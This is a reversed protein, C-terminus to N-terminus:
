KPGVNGQLLENVNFSVIRCYPAPQGNETLAVHMIRDDPEFVVSHHLLMRPIPVKKLLDWSGEVTLHTRGGSSEIRQLAQKLTDYRWCATPPIRKEFHNTCVLFSKGAEPERLTVGSGVNLAGDYEFVVSGKGAKSAPLGVFMNQPFVNPRTVLLQQIDEVATEASAKELAERFILMHSYSGIEPSAELGMADHSAAIVGEDNMGTICGIHGPFAIMVTGHDGSGPVPTRVTMIHTMPVSEPVINWDMNRGVISHGDWTMDGWASFSSCNFYLVYSNNLFLLDEIKVERDLEPIMAKGGKARAHIGLLMAEFEEMYKPLVVAGELRPLITNEYFGPTIDLFRVSILADLMDVFDPGTLYGCAYGQEASTGWLRLVPIGEVETLSGNVQETPSLWTNTLPGTPSSKESCGYQISSIFFLVTLCELMRIFTRKVGKM